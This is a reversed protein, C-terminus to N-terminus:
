HCRRLPRLRTLDEVTVLAVASQPDLELGCRDELAAFLEAVDLSDLELADLSTSATAQEIGRRHGLLVDNVAELAITLTVVSM